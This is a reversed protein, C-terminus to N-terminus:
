IAISRGPRAYYEVAAGYRPAIAWVAGVCDLSSSFLDAGARDLFYRREDRNM